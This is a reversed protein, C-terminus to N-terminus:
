NDLRNGITSGPWCDFIETIHMIILSKAPHDPNAKLVTERMRNYNEGETEIRTHGKIQYSIKDNPIMVNLAAAPNQQLNQITKTMFNDVLWLENDNEIFVLKIPIVNPLGSTTATAFPYLEAKEIADKVVNSLKGM